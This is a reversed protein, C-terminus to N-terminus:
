KRSLQQLQLGLDYLQNRDGGAIDKTLKVAKKLPMEQMLLGLVKEQQSTEPAANAQGAVMVVFEGKQQNHDEALWQKAANASGLFFTEFTKTIERAIAIEREGCGEDIFEDILQVIRHPAEYFVITATSSLSKALREHRITKKTPLFGVFLFQETSLGSCSLAAIVARAGPVPSSRFLM